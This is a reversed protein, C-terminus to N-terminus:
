SAALAIDVGTTIRATEEQGSIPAIGTNRFSDTFGSTATVILSKLSNKNM